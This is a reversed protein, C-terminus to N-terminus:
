KGASSQENLIEALLPDPSTPHGAILRSHKMEGDRGLQEKLKRLGYHLRSKVTGESCCLAVAIQAQTMNEVFRLVIVERQRTPLRSVCGWIGARWQQHEVQCRYAM